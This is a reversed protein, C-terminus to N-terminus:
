INRAGSTCTLVWAELKKSLSIVKLRKLIGRRELESLVYDEFEPILPVATEADVADFLARRAGPPVYIFISRPPLDVTEEAELEESDESEESAKKAKDQKKTANNAVLTAEAYLGDHSVTKCYMKEMTAFTEVVSDGEVYINGGGYIASSMAEVQEPYGGFRIACLTKKGAQEDYVLVDAYNTLYIGRGSDSYSVKMLKKTM